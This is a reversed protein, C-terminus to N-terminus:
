LEVWSRCNLYVWHQITKRAKLMIISSKNTHCIQSGSHPYWSGRCHTPVCTQRRISLKMEKVDYLSNLYTQIKEELFRQQMWNGRYCFKLGPPFIAKKIRNISPLFEFLFIQNKRFVAFILRDFCHSWGNKIKPM